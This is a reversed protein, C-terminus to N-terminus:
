SASQGSNQSLLAVILAHFLGPIYFCITLVLNLYFAMGFGKAMFVALPPVLLLLLLRAPEM